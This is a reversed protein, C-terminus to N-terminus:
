HMMILKGKAQKLDSRQVSYFYIGQSFSGLDIQTSLTTTETYYLEQGNSNYIIIKLASVEEQVFNFIGTSANPYVRLEDAFSNEDIGDLYDVCGIYSLFTFPNVFVVPSIQSMSGNAQLTLTSTTITTPFTQLNTGGGFDCSGSQSLNHNLLSDTKILGIHEQTLTSKLGIMPGTGIVFLGKNQAEVVNSSSFNLGRDHLAVGNSDFKVVNTGSMQDGIAVAICSDSLLTLNQMDLSNTYTQMGSYNKEWLLDGGFDTKFLGEMNTQFDYFLSVIGGSTIKSNQIAINQMLKSWGLQGNSTFQQLFGNYSGGQIAYGGVLYSGDPFRDLGTVNQISVEDYVYSWILTGDHSLKAIILKGNNGIKGTIVLSSDPNALVRSATCYTMTGFKFSRSWLTDGQQNIKILYANQSSTSPDAVDGVAVINSDATKAVHNFNVQSATISKNWIVNGLSDLRTVFGKNWERKGAIYIDNDFGNTVSQVSNDIGDQYYVKSFLTDQAYTNIGQLICILLLLKKM